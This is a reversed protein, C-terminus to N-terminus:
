CRLLRCADGTWLPTVWVGLCVGPFVFGVTTEGSCWRLRYDGWGKEAHIWSLPSFRRTLSLIEGRVVPFYLRVPVLGMRWVTTKLLKVEGSLKGSRNSIEISFFRLRGVQIETFYAAGLFFPDVVSALPALNFLRWVRSAFASSTSSHLHWRGM